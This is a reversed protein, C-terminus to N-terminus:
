YVITELRDLSARLEHKLAKGSANRPIDACVVEHPLKFDAILRRCHARVGELTIATGERPTVVAVISEGYDPHPRAVVACDVVDPHSAVAREVEVSYVNRGGTIILDKLRDVLTIYGDADVRALDGTRLWGNRLTSATEAPRNWYGKMVSAGRLIIEGVEGAAVDRDQRDVVRAETFPQAQRGSADPRERVQQPSCYLGAPGAETQGCQQTLQVGPLAELMQEVATAPMPAAGFIGVRWSSLDRKALDPQRLLFQYMTPVGLFMTVREREIADLVTAPDFAPMVVHTGALLTITTLFVIGGSHYLPAIHLYREGDVLGCTALQALGAWVARRHDLLVGKPEGTTGSTYLILADDDEDPEDHTTRSPRHRALALLDDAARGPGLALICLDESVGHEALAEVSAELAPDYLLLRSGSDRIIYAIEPRALRSNVPVLLAGLRLVAYFALVFGDSNPALLACRDGNRVGREALAGAIRDVEADLDAWTLRRDGFVLAEREPTRRGNAALLANITHITM